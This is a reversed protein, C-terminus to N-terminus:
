WKRHRWPKALLAIIFVLGFLWMILSYRYNQLSGQKIQIQYVPLDNIKIQNVETNILLKNDIISAYIFGLGINELLTDFIAIAIWRPNPNTPKLQEPHILVSLGTDKLFEGKFLTPYLRMLLEINLMKNNKLQLLHPTKFALHLSVPPLITNTELQLLNANLNANIMPGLLRNEATEPHTIEDLDAALQHIIEAQPHQDLPTDAFIKDLKNKDKLSFDFGQNQNALQLINFLHTLILPRYKKIELSQGGGNDHYPNSEFNPIHIKSQYSRRGEGTGINPSQSPQQAKKYTEFLAMVQSHSLGPPANPQSSPQNSTANETDQTPKESEAPLLRNGDEEIPLLSDYEIPNFSLEAINNSADLNSSLPRDGIKDLTSIDQNDDSNADSDEKTKEGIVRDDGLVAGRIGAVKEGLYHWHRPKINNDKLISLALYYEGVGHIDIRINQSQQPSLTKLYRDLINNPKLLESRYIKHNNKVIRVYGDYIEIIPYLMPQCDHAIKCSKYDHLYAPPTSPLDNFVINNAIQRALITTIDANEEREQQAKKQEFDLSIIILILIVAISNALIDALVVSSKKFLKKSQNRM